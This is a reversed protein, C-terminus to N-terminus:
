TVAVAVVLAGFVVCAAGMLRNKLLRRGNGAEDAGGDTEIEDPHSRDGAFVDPRLVNAAGFAAVLLGM